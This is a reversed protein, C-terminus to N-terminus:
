AVQDNSHQIGLAVESFNENCTEGVTWSGAQRYGRQYFVGDDGKERIGPLGIRAALEENGAVVIDRPVLGLQHPLQESLGPRITAQEM